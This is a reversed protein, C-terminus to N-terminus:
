GGNCGLLDHDEYVGIHSAWFRVRINGNTPTTGLYAWKIQLM